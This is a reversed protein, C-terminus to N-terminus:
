SFEKRPTLIMAGRASECQEMSLHNALLFASIDDFIMSWVDDIYKFMLSVHHLLFNFLELFDHKFSVIYM